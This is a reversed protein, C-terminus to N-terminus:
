WLILEGWEIRFNKNLFEQRSAQSESGWNQKKWLDIGIWKRIVM